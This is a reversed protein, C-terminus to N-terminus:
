HDDQIRHHRTQITFSQRPVVRYLLVVRVLWKDKNASYADNYQKRTSADLDKWLVSAKTLM